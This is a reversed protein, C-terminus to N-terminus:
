PSLSSPGYRLRVIVFGSGPGVASASGGPGAALTRPIRLYVAGDCPGACGAPSAGSEGDAGYGVGAIHNVWSAPLGYADWVETSTGPGYAPGPDGGDPDIGTKGGAYADAQDCFVTVRAQDFGAERVFVAPGFCAGWQPLLALLDQIDVVQDGDLDCSGPGGWQGLLALLDVIAVQGDPMGACDGTCAEADARDTGVSDDGPGGIWELNFDGVWVLELTIPDPLYNQFRYTQTLTSVAGPEAEVLQTLNVTLDVGDGQVLFESTLQDDIGDFNTDSPTSPATVTRNLSTDGQFGLGVQWQENAALLERRDPGVFVFLGSSFTASELDFGPPNYADGGGGFDPHSRAGFSDPIVTLFGDANHDPGSGMPTEDDGTPGGPCVGFNALLALFDDIDVIGDNDTDCSGPGGFQDLLVELDVFDVFGNGNGCDWPCPPGLNVPRGRVMFATNYLDAFESHVDDPSETLSTVPLTYAGFGPTPFRRSRWMAPAGPAQGGPPPIGDDCAVSFGIIVPPQMDFTCANNIGFPANTFWAFNSPVAGGPGSSNGAYTTLWYDGPELFLGQAVFGTREDDTGTPDVFAVEVTDDPDVDGDADLDVQDAPTPAVDLAVRHYVEYLHTENTVGMPTFGEVIVQEISWHTGYPLPPVTFAQATRRENDNPAAGDVNGSSWSLHTPTYNGTNNADFLVVEHPGTDHLTTFDCAPELLPVGLCFGLDVDAVTDSFDYGDPPNVGDGDVLMRGNGQRPPAFLDSQIPGSESWSWFWAVGEPVANTIELWYCSGGTVEIGGPLKIGAEYQHIPTVGAVLYGSDLESLINLTGATESAVGVVADPLGDLDQDGLVRVTFSDPADGAPLYAGQFCLSVIETSLAPTFDDACAFEGATSNFANRTSYIQCTDDDQGACLPLVTCGLDLAAQACPPDWAVTCCFGDGLCVLTCCCPDDCGPTGHALGCEGAAAECGPFISFACGTTDGLVLNLCFAQDFDNVPDPAGAQNSCGDGEATEWLWRCNGATTDNTIEIWLCTGASASVGPITASYEYEVLDGIGSPIVLGTPASAPSVAFPGAVVAGPAGCPCGPANAFFTITFQDPTDPGPCPVSFDTYTGWWCVSTITGGATIVFNDAVAFGSADDSTAAVTGGDGHGAQDPLQCDAPNSDLICPGAGVASRRPVRGSAALRSRDAPAVPADSAGPADMARAYPALPARAVRDALAPTPRLMPATAPKAAPRPAAVPGEGGPAGAGLGLVAVVAAVAGGRRLAPLDRM